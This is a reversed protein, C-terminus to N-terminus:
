GGNLPGTLLAMYVSTEQKRGLPLLQKKLKGM